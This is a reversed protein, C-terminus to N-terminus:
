NHSDEDKVVGKDIHIKVVFDNENEIYIDIKHNIELDNKLINQIKSFGSGGEVNNKELIEKELQENLLKIKQSLKVKDIDTKNKICILISADINKKFEFKCEPNKIGSHAIINNFLNYLIHFMGLFSKGKLMFNTIEEKVDITGNIVKLVLNKIAEASYDTDESDKSLYFWNSITDIRNQIELKSELITKKLESYDEDTKKEIEEIKEHLRCLIDVYLKKIEEKFTNRVDILITETIEIYANIVNDIFVELEDTQVVVFNYNYNFLGKPKENGHIQILENKIFLSLDDIQKSYDNLVALLERITESTEGIRYKNKWYDNIHYKEDEGIKTIIKKEEFIQRLSSVLIGHRIQTSLCTDIGFNKDFLFIGRVKEILDRITTKKIVMKEDNSAEKQSNLSSSCNFSENESDITEMKKYKIFMNEIENKAIKKIGKKNIFIKNRNIKNFVLKALKEKNLFIIEDIYKNNSEKDFESLKKCINIREEILDLSSDFYISDSMIQITCIEYFFYILKYNLTFKIKEFYNSPKECGNEILFSEYSSFTKFRYKDSVYKEYLHYIIPINIDSYTEVIEVTELAMKFPLLPYLFHNRNYIEVLTELGKSKFKKSLLLSNLYCTIITNYSLTDFNNITKELIAVVEEYNNKNYELECIYRIKREEPINMKSIKERNEEYFFCLLSITESNLNEIKKLKEYFFQDLELNKIDLNKANLQHLIAYKIKKESDFLNTYKNLLFRIGYTWQQSSFMMLKKEILSEFKIYNEDYNKIKKLASMLNFFLSDEKIGFDLNLRISSNIYIDYLESKLPTKMLIKECLRFTVDYNGKSYEDYVRLIKQDIDIFNELQSKLNLIRFDSTDLHTYILKIEDYYNSEVKNELLLKNVVKLLIEYTDIVSIKSTANLIYAYQDDVSINEIDKNSEDNFFDLYFKYFIPLELILNKYDRVKTDEEARYSYFYCLNKIVSTCEKNKFIEQLYKKQEKFGSTLQILNIKNEIYWLSIGFNNEIKQLIEEADKLNESFLNAEFSQKLEVFTKLKDQFLNLYFVSWKLENKLDVYLLGKAVGFVSFRSPFPNGFYKNMYYFNMKGKEKLKDFPLLKLSSLDFQEKDKKTPKKKLERVM